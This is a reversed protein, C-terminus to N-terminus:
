RTSNRSYDACKDFTGIYGSLEVLAWSESPYGVTSSKAGSAEADSPLVPTKTIHLGSAIALLTENNGTTGYDRKQRDM